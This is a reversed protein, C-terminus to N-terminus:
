LGVTTPGTDAHSDGSDKDARPSEVHPDTRNCIDGKEAAVNAGKRGNGDKGDKRGDRPNTGNLSRATRCVWVLPVKELSSLRYTELLRTIRNRAALNTTITTYGMAWGYFFVALTPHTDNMDSAIRHAVTPLAPRPPPGPSQPSLSLSSLLPHLSPDNSSSFGSVTRIKDLSWSETEVAIPLMLDDPVADPYTSLARYRSVLTPQDIGVADGEGLLLRAREQESPQAMDNVMVRFAQAAERTCVLRHGHLADAMLSRLVQGPRKAERGIEEVRQAPHWDKVAVSSHTIDSTLAILISTDINLTPTLRDSVDPLLRQLTVQLDSPPLTTTRPARASHIDIQLRHGDIDPPLRAARAALGRRVKGLYRALEASERKKRETDETSTTGDLEELGDAAEDIRTLLIDIRPYAGRYRNAHAAEVLDLALEVLSMEAIDELEDEESEVDSEETLGWEWGNEAMEMLLQASTTTLVRLWARGNDVVANVFVGETRSGAGVVNYRKKKRAQATSWAARADSVSAKSSTTGDETTATTTAVPKPFRRELALVGRCTKIIRWMGEKAALNTVALRLEGRRKDDSDYVGELLKDAARAEIQLMSIYPRVGPWYPQRVCVRLAEQFAEYEAILTTWRAVLGAPSDDVPPTTTAPAVASPATVRDTKLCDSEM